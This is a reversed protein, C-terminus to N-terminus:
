IPSIPQSIFKQCLNPSTAIGQPLIRWQFRQMPEKFHIAPLSFAFRQCNNPHLPITLFFFGKLDIVMLHYYLSIAIPSPWGPQLPGM